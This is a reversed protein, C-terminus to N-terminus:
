MVASDVRVPFEEENACRFTLCPGPAMTTQTGNGSKWIAFRHQVLSVRSIPDPRELTVLSCNPSRTQAPVGLHRCRTSCVEGRAHLSAYCLKIVLVHM